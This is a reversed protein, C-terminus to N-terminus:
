KLLELTQQIMSKTAQVASANMEYARAASMMDTMEAIPNIDPYSVYGQSDADPHNPEFRRVPSSKDEIVQSIKVGAGELASAFSPKQSEFVVMKRKYPGGEPTRTTEANAMNSAVVEARTREAKLASSSIELSNFLNM